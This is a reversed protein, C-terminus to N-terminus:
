GQEIVRGGDEVDPILIGPEEMLEHVRAPEEYFMMSYALMAILENYPFADENSPKIHELLEESSDILSELGIVGRSIETFFGHSKPVPPFTAQDDSSNFVRLYNERYSPNKSGRLSHHDKLIDLIIHYDVLSEFRSVEEPSYLKKSFDTEPYVSNILRGRAAEAINRFLGNANSAQLSGILTPAAS